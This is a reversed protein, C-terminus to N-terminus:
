VKNLRNLVARWVTLLAAFDEERSRSEILFDFGQAARLEEEATQLRRQIEEECDQGRLEMRRRLEDLPVSIFVTAAEAPPPALLGGTLLMGALLGTAYKWRATM